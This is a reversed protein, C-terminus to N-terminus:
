AAVVEPLQRYGQAPKIIKSALQDAMLTELDADNRRSPWSEELTKHLITALSRLTIPGERTRRGDQNEAVQKRIDEELFPFLPYGRLPERLREVRFQNIRREVFALAQEPTLPEMRFRTLNVRNNERADRLLRLDETILFMIIVHTETYEEYLRVADNKARADLGDIVLYCYSGLAVSDLKPALYDYPMERPSHPPGPPYYYSKWEVNCQKLGHALASVLTSKGTGKEGSVLFAFQDTTVVQEEGYGAYELMYKFQRQYEGFKGAEPVFLHELAPEEDMRLANKYLTSLRMRNGIAPQDGNQVRPLGAPSFPDDSLGFAREFRQARPSANGAAEV